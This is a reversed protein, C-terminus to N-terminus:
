KTKMEYVGDWDEGPPNVILDECRELYKKSPGDAPDVYLAKAFFDRAERFKMLKYRRLGQDFLALLKRKEESIV